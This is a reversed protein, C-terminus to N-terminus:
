AIEDLLTQIFHPLGRSGIHAERILGDFHQTLASIRERDRFVLYKQGLYIAALLPGFITIPASYIRRADFLSLRLSPYLQQVLAKLHKLQKIRIDRPCNHYYGEARSFAYLDHLPLAIEYDSQAKSMWNLRDESAGIAQGITRGLTPEYEWELMEHIKIMDPLGAPVHRIKYGAAEQHWAFIQADILARPADAMTMAQALVQAAPEPQDSLGLLWDASVGLSQACEAVLNANPLRADTGILIQSLTSRDAGTKRSLSSQTDGSLTMATQLRTRFLASRDRKDM